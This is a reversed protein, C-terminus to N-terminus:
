PSAEIEPGKPLWFVVQAGCGPHSDIKLWGGHQELVGLASPLGMGSGLTKTTFFPEFVQERKGAPIGMGTDSLTFLCGMPGGDAELTIKGGMPMADQANTLLESLAGGFLVSDVLVETEPQHILTEVEFKEQLKELLPDWVDQLLSSVSRNELNLKLIQGFALLKTNLRLSQETAKRIEEFYHLEDGTSPVKSQIEELEAQVLLLQEQLSKGTTTGIRALSEWRRRKEIFGQLSRQQLVSSQLSQLAQELQREREAVRLCLLERNRQQAELAQHLNQSQQQVSNSLALTSLMTARRIHLYTTVLVLSITVITITDFNPSGFKWTDWIIWIGLAICAGLLAWALRYMVLGLSLAILLLFGQFTETESNLASLGQAAAALITLFCLVGHSFRSPIRPLLALLLLAGGATCSIILLQFVQTRGTMTAARFVFVFACIAVLAWALPRIKLQVLQDLYEGDSSFPCSDQSTSPLDPNM